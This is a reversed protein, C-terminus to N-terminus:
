CSFLVDLSAALFCLAACIAWCFVRATGKANYLAHLSPFRAATTASNDFSCTLTFSCNRVDGRAYSAPARGEANLETADAGMELLISATSETAGFSNPFHAQM